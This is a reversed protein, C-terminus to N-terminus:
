TVHILAATFNVPPRTNGFTFVCGCTNSISKAHRARFPGCRYSAGTSFIDYSQARYVNTSVPVGMVFIFDEDYSTSGGLIDEIVNSSRIWEGLLDFTRDINCQGTLQYEEEKFGLLQIDEPFSLTPNNDTTTSGILLISYLLDTKVRKTVGLVNDLTDSVTTGFHYDDKEIRLTPRGLITEITFGVNCIKYVEENLTKFSMSGIDENQYDAAVGTALHLGNTVFLGEFEGGVDFLTSKFDVEGDSMFSVLFKCLEFVRYAYRPTASDVGTSPTFMTLKELTAPSIDVGSKSKGVHPFAEININNKIRAFYSNDEVDCEVTCKNMDFQMDLCSILGDVVKDWGSGDSCQEEIIIKVEKCFSNADFVCKLYDYGDGVFTLKLNTKILLGHLNLDRDIETVLDEWGIPEDALLTGDLYFKYRPTM